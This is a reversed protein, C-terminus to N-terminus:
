DARHRSLFAWIVESADFSRTTSGIVFKPLYQAGGPWTHGAGAVVYSVIESQPTPGRWTRVTTDSGIATTSPGSSAAQYGVWATVWSDVGVVLGRGGFGSAVTGGEYPVLPDATGHVVLIPVPRSPACRGAVSVSATGAVQAM